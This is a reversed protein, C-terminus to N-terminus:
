VNRRAPMTDLDCDSMNYRTSLVAISLINGMIGVSGVAPTAIGDLWFSTALWVREYGADMRSVGCDVDLSPADATTTTTATANVLM